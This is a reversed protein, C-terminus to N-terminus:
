MASAIFLTTVFGAVIAGVGLAWGSPPEVAFLEMSRYYSRHIAYVVSFFALGAVRLAIEVGSRGAVDFLWQAGGGREEWWVLGVTLAIAAVALPWDSALRKLRWANVMAVIAGALPGGFFAALFGTTASYISTEPSTESGLSPRLLEDRDNM